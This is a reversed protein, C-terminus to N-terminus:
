RIRQNTGFGLSNIVNNAEDRNFLKLVGFTNEELRVFLMRFKKARRSVISLGSAQIPKYEWVDYTKHGINVSFRMKKIGHTQGSVIDVGYKVHELINEIDHVFKDGHQNNSLFDKAMSEFSAEDGEEFGRTTVKHLGALKIPERSNDAESAAVAISALNDVTRKQVLRERRRSNLRLVTLRSAPSAQSGSAALRFRLAEIVCEEYTDRFQSQWDIDDNPVVLDAFNTKAYRMSKTMSDALAQRSKALSALSDKSWEGMNNALIEVTAQPNDALEPNIAQAFRIIRSLSGLGNPLNNRQEPNLALIANLMTRAVYVDYQGSDLESQLKSLFSSGAIEFAGVLALETPMDGNAADIPKDGVGYATMGSVTRILDFRQQATTGDQELCVTTDICASQLDKIRPAMEVIRSILVRNISPVVVADLPEGLLDTLIQQGDVGEDLSNMVNVGSTLTRATLAKLKPNTSRAELRSIKDPMQLGAAEAVLKNSDNVEDIGSLRSRIEALVPYQAEVMSVDVSLLRALQAEVDEPPAQIAFDEQSIEQTMFFTYYLSEDKIDICGICQRKTDAYLYNGVLLILQSCHYLRSTRYRPTACNTARVAPPRSTAPELGTVGVMYIKSLNVLM